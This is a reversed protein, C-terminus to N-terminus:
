HVITNICDFKFDRLRSMITVVMKYTLSSSILKYHWANHDGYLGDNFYQVRNFDVALNLGLWENMTWSIKICAHRFLSKIYTNIM